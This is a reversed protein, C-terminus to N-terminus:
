TLRMKIYRAKLGQVLTGGAGPGEWGLPCARRPGRDAWATIHRAKPAKAMRAVDAGTAPPASAPALQIIM